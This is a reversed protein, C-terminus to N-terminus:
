EDASLVDVGSETERKAKEKIACEACIERGYQKATYDAVQAATMGSAPQIDKGCDLCKPQQPNEQLPKRVRTGGTVERGVKVSPDYYLTIKKGEWLDADKGYLTMITKANTVNLILPKINEKFYLIGKLEKGTPCGKSPVNQVEEEAHKLITVTFTRNAPLGFDQEGFYKCDPKAVTKWHTGM